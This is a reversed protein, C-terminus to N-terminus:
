LPGGRSSQATGELVARACSAPRVLANAESVTATLVLATMLTMLIRKM